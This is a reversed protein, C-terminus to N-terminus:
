SLLGPPLNEVDEEKSLVCMGQVSMSNLGHLEWVGMCARRTMEGDFRSSDNDSDGGGSPM